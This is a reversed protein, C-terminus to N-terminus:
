TTLVLFIKLMVGKRESLRESLYVSVQNRHTSLVLFQYLFPHLLTCLRSIVSEGNPLSREPGLPSSNWSKQLISKEAYKKLTKLAFFLVDDAFFM